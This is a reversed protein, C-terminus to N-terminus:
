IVNFPFVRASMTSRQLDGPFSAIIFIDILINKMLLDLFDQVAGVHSPILANEKKVDTYM